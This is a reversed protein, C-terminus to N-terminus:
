LIGCNIACIQDIQGNELVERGSRSKKNIQSNSCLSSSGMQAGAAMRRKKRRKLFSFPPASFTRFEQILPIITHNCWSWVYWVFGHGVSGSLFIAPEIQSGAGSTQLFSSLLQGSQALCCWIRDKKTFLPFNQHQRADDPCSEQLKRCVEPGPLWVSGAVKEDPETQAQHLWDM